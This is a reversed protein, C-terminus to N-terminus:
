NMKGAPLVVTIQCEYCRCHLCSRTLTSFGGTDHSDSAMLPVERHTAVLEDNVASLVPPGPTGVWV